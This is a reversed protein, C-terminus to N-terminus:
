EFRTKTTYGIRGAEGSIKVLKGHLGGHESKMYMQVDISNCQERQKGAAKRIMDLSVAIKNMTLELSESLEQLEDNRFFNRVGVAMKKIGKGIGKVPSTLKKLSSCGYREM